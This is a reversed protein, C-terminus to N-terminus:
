LSYKKIDELTELLTKNAHLINAEISKLQKEFKKQEEVGPRKMPENGLILWDPNIDPFSLLIKQIVDLGPHNRGTTIHTVIPQSINTVEAFSKKTLNNVEIIKLLREAIDTNMLTIVITIISKCIYVLDLLM